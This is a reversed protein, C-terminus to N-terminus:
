PFGRPTLEAAKGHRANGSGLHSYHSSGGCASAGARRLGRVGFGGCASAGGRGARGSGEYTSGRARRHGWRRQTRQKERATVVKALGIGITEHARAGWAHGQPSAFDDIGEFWDSVEVYRLVGAEQLSRVAEDIHSFRAMQGNVSIVLLQIGQGALHHAFPDLLSVYAREERSPHTLPRDRSAPHAPTESGLGDNRTMRDPGGTEGGGAASRSEALRRSLIWAGSRVLNYLQSRQIPSKALFSKLGGMRGSLDHFEFHSDTWRTVPSLWGDVPDNACFQLIVIAPQYAAGFEEYKRIQQPLGWGGVALNLLAFRDGLARALVAPYEEGDNVGIGLSYSDGLVVVVTDDPDPRVIPGRYGDANITYVYRYRGPREHVIKSDPYLSTGYRSSYRYRPFMTEQPAVVRVTFEAAAFAVLLTVLLLAIAGRKANWLSRIFGVVM